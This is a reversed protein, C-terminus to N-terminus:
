VVNLGGTYAGTVDYKVRRANSAPPSTPSDKGGYASVLLSLTLAATGYLFQSREM